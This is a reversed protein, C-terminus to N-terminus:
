TSGHRHIIIQETIEVESGNHILVPIDGRYHISPMCFCNAGEIHKSNDEPYINVM